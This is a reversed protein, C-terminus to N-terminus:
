NVSTCSTESEYVAGVVKGAKVNIVINEIDQPTIGAFQAIAERIEKETLEIVHKSTKTTIRQSKMESTGQQNNQENGKFMKTFDMELVFRELTYKKNDYMRRLTFVSDKAGEIMVPDNNPNFARWYPHDHGRTRQLVMGKDFDM